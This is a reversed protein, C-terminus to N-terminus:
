VASALRTSGSGPARPSTLPAVSLEELRECSTAPWREPRPGILERGDRPRLFLVLLRDLFPPAADAATRYIDMDRSPNMAPGFSPNLVREAVAAVAQVLPDHRVSIGVEFADATRAHDVASDDILEHGGARDDSTPPVNSGAPPQPPSWWSPTGIKM